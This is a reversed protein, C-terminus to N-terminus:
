ANVMMGMIMYGYNDDGYDSHIMMIMVHNDDGVDNEDLKRRPEVLVLIINRHLCDYQHGFLQYM